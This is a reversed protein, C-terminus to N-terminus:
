GKQCKFDRVYKIITDTSNSKPIFDPEIYIERNDGTWFEGSWEIEKKIRMENMVLEAVRQVSLSDKNGVIISKNCKIPNYYIGLNCIVDAVEDALQYPKISGPAEGILHLKPENSTLKNILDRLLGHTAHVGVLAPIRVSVGRIKNNYSYSNVLHETTLKSTSYISIPYTDSFQNAPYKKSFAGFVTVSSINVFVPNNDLCSLLNNTTIINDILVQSPNETNPKNNPSGACHFILEPQVESIYERIAKLDLLDVKRHNYYDFDGRSITAVEHNTKTLLFSLISRGLFGSGGTILIRM